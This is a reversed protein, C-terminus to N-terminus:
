FSAEKAPLEKRVGLECIWARQRCSLWVWFEGTPVTLLELGPPSPLAALARYKGFVGSLQQEGLSSVSWPSNAQRLQVLTLYAHTKPARTLSDVHFSRTSPSGQEM